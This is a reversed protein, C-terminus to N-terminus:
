FRIYAQANRCAGRRGRWCWSEAEDSRADKDRSRKPRKTTKIKPDRQDRQGMTRSIKSQDKTKRGEGFVDRTKEKAAVKGKDTKCGLSPLTRKRYVVYYCKEGDGALVGATDTDIEIEGSDEGDGALPRDGKEDQAGKAVARWM